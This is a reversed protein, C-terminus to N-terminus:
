LTQAGTASRGRFAIKHTGPPSSTCALDGSGLGQLGVSLREYNMMTFMAALGRHEEGLLFGQAGDYNIVSTASGNIGMKRELSGSTWGNRPGLAGDANPVFKLYSSCRFVRRAGQATAIGRWLDPACYEGGYRARWPLSFRREPLASPAMPLRCSSAKTRMMGLDTGAHSETLAM